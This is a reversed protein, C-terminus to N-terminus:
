LSMIPSLPICFVASVTRAKSQSLQVQLDENDDALWDNERTLKEVAGKLESIQLLLQVYLITKISIM